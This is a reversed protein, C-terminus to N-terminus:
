AAQKAIFAVFGDMWGQFFGVSADAVSGDEKVLTEQWHIYLEPQNYLVAGFFSVISKLHAQAVASGIGGMSAGAIASPRGLVGKGWPRSAWDIANKLSGPISRNYEPTVYLLADCAAIQEKFDVAVAPYDADADRNYVPLEAIPIERFTVNEPALRVLAEAFRRNISDKSLSGIIYGVTFQTDAM